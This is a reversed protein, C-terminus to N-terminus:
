LIRIQMVRAYVIKDIAEVAFKREKTNVSYQGSDQMIFSLSRHMLPM